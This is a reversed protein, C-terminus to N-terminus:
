LDLLYIKSTVVEIINEKLNIIELIYKRILLLRFLIRSTCFCLDKVSKNINIDIWSM